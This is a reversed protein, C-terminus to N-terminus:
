KKRKFATILFTMKGNKIEPEIVAVKRELQIEYRGKENTKIFDGKEIVETINSLFDDINIGQSRRREIIHCLGMGENGWILAINGIDKRTFADPVWGEKKKMLLNVADQGKVNKYETGLIKSIDANFKNIKTNDKGESAGSGDTFKGSEDRPHESEKFDQNSLQKNSRTFIKCIEKIFEVKDYGARKAITDFARIIEADSIETM